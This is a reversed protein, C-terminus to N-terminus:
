LYLNMYKGGCNLFRMVEADKHARKAVGMKGLRWCHSILEEDECHLKLFTIYISNYLIVTLSPKKV